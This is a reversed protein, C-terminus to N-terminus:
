AQEPEVSADAERPTFTSGCTRCTVVSSTGAFTDDRYTNVSACNICPDGSVPQDPDALTVALADPDPQPNDPLPEGPDFEQVAYPYAPDVNSSM